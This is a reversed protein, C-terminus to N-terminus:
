RRPVSQALKSISYVCATECAIQVGHGDRSRSLSRCRCSPTQSGAAAPDDDFNYVSDLTGEYRRLMENIAFARVM